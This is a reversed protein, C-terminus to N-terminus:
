ILEQESHSNAIARIRAHTTRHDSSLETAAVRRGLGNATPSLPRILRNMDPRSAASTALTLWAVRRCHAFVLCPAVISICRNRFRVIRLKSLDPTKGINPGLYEAVKFFTCEACQECADLRLTRDQIDSASRTAIDTARESAPTSDNADVNRHLHQGDGSAGAQRIRVQNRQLLCVRCMERESVALEISDNAEAQVM